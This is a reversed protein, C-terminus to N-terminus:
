KLLVLRKSQVFDGAQLRYFYVGSALQAGDLQVEHVGVDRRENVLVSVERGLMDFVSLKVVSSKPLEYKITTSPNFPNPYNQRILFAVPLEGTIPDVSAIMESLPRRWVESRATGAFLDTGNVAFSTVYTDQLGTQTWNTGSDTSLLVGGEIGAFINTGSVAFSTVYTNPLGTPTWSTGNDTSRFVGGSHTAAFLKPTGNGDPSVALSRVDRNTLGSVVQTWSTGNNTSRFVGGGYTGAFLNTDSVALSLVFL